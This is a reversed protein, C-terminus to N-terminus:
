VVLVGNLEDYLRREALVEDDDMRSKPQARKRKLYEFCVRGTKPNCVPVADLEPIGMCVWTTKTERRYVRFCAVCNQQKRTGSQLGGSFLKNQEFRLIREGAANRATGSATRKAGSARSPASVVLGRTDAEKNTVLARALADAFGKITLGNLGSAHISELFVNCIKHM